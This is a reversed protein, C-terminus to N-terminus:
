WAVYGVLCTWHDASLGLSPNWYNGCHAAAEQPSVTILQGSINTGDPSVGIKRTMAYLPRGYGAIPRSEWSRPRVLGMSGEPTFGIQACPEPFGPRWFVYTHVGKYVSVCRMLHYTTFAQPTDWTGFYNGWEFTWNAPPGSMAVAESWSTTYFHYLGNWMRHVGAAQVNASVLMTLAMAAGMMTKRM